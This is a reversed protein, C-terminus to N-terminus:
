DRSASRAARRAAKETLLAKTAQGTSKTSIKTLQPKEAGFEGISSGSCASLLAVAVASLLFRLLAM